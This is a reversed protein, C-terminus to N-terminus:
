HACRTWVVQRLDLLKGQHGKIDCCEESSSGAKSICKARTSILKERTTDQIVNDEEGKGASTLNRNQTTVPAAAALASDAEM